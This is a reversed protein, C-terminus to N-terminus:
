GYSLEYQPCTAVVLLDSRGDRHAPPTVTVTITLGVPDAGPTSLIKQTIDSIVHTLMRKRDLSSLMSGDVAQTVEFSKDTFMNEVTLDNM